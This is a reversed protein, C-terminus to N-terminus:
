DSGDDVGDRLAERESTLGAAVATEAVSENIKKIKNFLHRNQYIKIKVGVLLAVFVFQLLFFTASKIYYGADGRCDVCSEYPSDRVFGPLCQNCLNGTSPFQCEGLPTLLDGTVESDIKGGLCDKEHPCSLASNSLNSFRWFGIKPSVQSGGWCDMNLPCSECTIGQALPNGWSFRGIPCTECVQTSPNYLDGVECPIVRTPINIELDSNLMKLISLPSPFTSKLTILASTNPTAIYTLTPDLLYGSVDSFNSQLEGNIRSITPMNAMGAKATNPHFSVEMFDHMTLGEFPEGTESDLLDVYVLADLPHGSKLDVEDTTIVTKLAQGRRIEVSSNYILYPHTM